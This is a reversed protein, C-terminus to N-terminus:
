VLPWRPDPYWIAGRLRGRAQSWRDRTVGPQDGLAVVAAICDDPMAALGCRVSSLMEGDTEPNTAWHVPRGALAGRISAEDRGVGVFTDSVPSAIM